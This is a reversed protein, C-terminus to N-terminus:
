QAHNFDFKVDVGLAEWLVKLSDDSIDMEDPELRGIIHGDVLIEWGAEGERSGADDALARFLVTRM